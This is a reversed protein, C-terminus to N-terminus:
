SVFNPLTFASVPPPATELKEIQVLCTQAACGQSLESAGIDATLANPNGHKDLRPEAWSQPDFWAGTSLKVVGPAIQDSLVAGALCAGRDNWIRVVDGAAIGRQRADRPNLTVPERGAVKNSRSL